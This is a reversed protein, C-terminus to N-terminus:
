DSIVPEEKNENSKKIKRGQWRIFKYILWFVLLCAVWVVFCVLKYWENQLILQIEFSGDQNKQCLGKAFCLDDVSVIWANAYNNWRFHAKESIPKNFINGSFSLSGLNDNRISDDVKKSIFGSGVQSILGEELFRSVEELSAQRNYEKESVTYDNLNTLNDAFFDSKKPYVKWSDNYKESSFILLNNKAGHIIIETQFKNLPNYEVSSFNKINQTETSSFLYYNEINKPAYETLRVNDYLNEVEKNGNSLAYFFIQISNFDNNKSNIVVELENWNNDDVDLFESSKKIIEGNKNELQYYYGIEGGKKSKYNFSLKYLKENDPNVSFKKNTCANHNASAIRLSHSGLFAEESLDMSFDSNGPMEKNCDYPRSTWLGNEFSADETNLLNKESSEFKLENEGLVLSINDALKLSEETISTREIKLTGQQSYAELEVNDYLNEVKQNEESPAYFFIQVASFEKPQFVKEFHKWNSDLPKFFESEQFINEGNEGLFAIFYGVKSGALAKYDFSLKYVAEQGGKLNFKKGVCANHNESRLLMSRKGQTSDSSFGTYIKAEGPSNKSCDFAKRSWLSNEFSSSNEDLLNKGSLRFISAESNELAEYSLLNNDGFNDLNFLHSEGIKLISENSLGSISFLSKDSTSVNQKGIQFNNKSFVFNIRQDTPNYVAKLLSEKEIKQFLSFKNELGYENRFIYKKDENIELPLFIDRTMELLGTFNKKEDSYDSKAVSFGGKQDLISEGSSLLVTEVFNKGGILLNEKKFLFTIFLSLILIILFLSGAIIKFWKKSINKM